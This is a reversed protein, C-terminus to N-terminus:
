VFEHKVHFCRQFRPKRTCAAVFDAIKIIFTTLLWSAKECKTYNRKENDLVIFLISQPPLAEPTRHGPRFPPGGILVHVVAYVFGLINGKVRQAVCKKLGLKGVKGRGNSTAGDPRHGNMANM